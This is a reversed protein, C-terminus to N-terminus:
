KQSDIIQQLSSNLQVILQTPQKSFTIVPFPCIVLPANMIFSKKLFGCKLISVTFDPSSNIAASSSIMSTTRSLAQGQSLRRKRPDRSNTSISSSNSLPVSTSTSISDHSDHVSNSRLFEPKPMSFNLRSLINSSETTPPRMTTDKNTPHPPVAKEPDQRPKIVPQPKM